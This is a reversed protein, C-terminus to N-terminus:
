VNCNEEASAFAAKLEETSSQGGGRVQLMLIAWNDDDLMEDYTNTVCAVVEEKEDPTLDMDSPMAEILANSLEAKDDARTDVPDGCGVLILGATILILTKFNTM